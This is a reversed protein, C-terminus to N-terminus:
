KRNFYRSAFEIFTPLSKIHLLEMMRQHDQASAQRIKEFYVDREEKTMSNVDQGFSDISLLLLILSVWQALVKNTTTIM